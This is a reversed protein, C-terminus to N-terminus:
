LLKLSAKGAPGNYLLELARIRKTKGKFPFFLLGGAPAAHEGEPLAARQIREEMPMPPEKTQGSPNESEPVRPPAPGRRANPDGPFREVPDPRGLIIPGATATLTPRQEWDPYKLSAGVMGPAQTMLPTKQGNIRLTFQDASMKVRALRPGFFAVEVVLYDNTFYGGEPAPIAHVLYEAALTLSGVPARVPYESETQKPTTGQAHLMAQALLPLVCVRAAVMM